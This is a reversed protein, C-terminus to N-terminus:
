DFEYDLTDAARRKNKPAPRMWLSVTLPQMTDQVVRLLHDSLQELDVEDRVAASFAEVTREANYKRRYMRRDIAAQVRERLPFFLAAIILTSGVVALPSNAGTMERFLFQFLIVSDTSILGLMTTLIAYVLTGRIVVDIEFLRYRFIAIAVSLPFALEILRTLVWAALLTNGKLGFAVLLNGVLAGASTLLTGWAM